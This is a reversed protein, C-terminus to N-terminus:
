EDLEKCNYYNKNEDFTRESFRKEEDMFLDKFWEPSSDLSQQTKDIQDKLWGKKNM